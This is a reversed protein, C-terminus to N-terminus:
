SVWVSCLEDETRKEHKFTSVREWELKRLDLQSKAKCRKCIAKNPISPFNYKWKHGFIGCMWSVEIKM